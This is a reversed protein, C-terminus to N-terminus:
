AADKLYFTYELSYSTDDTRMSVRFTVYLARGNLLGVKVPRAPGYGIANPNKFILALTSEDLAEATIGTEGETLSLRFVITMPPDESVIFKTDSLDASSLTGSDYVEFEGCLVKLKKRKLFHHQVTNSSGFDDLFLQTVNLKEHKRPVSCGNPGAVVLTAQTLPLFLRYATAGRQDTTPIRM